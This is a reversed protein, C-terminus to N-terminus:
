PLSFLASFNRSSLYYLKDSVLSLKLHLIVTYSIDDTKFELVFHYQILVRVKM